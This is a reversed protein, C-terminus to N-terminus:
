NIQVWTIDGVTFPKLNYTAQYIVKININEKMSLLFVQKILLWQVLTASIMFISDVNAENQLAGTPAPPELTWVQSM